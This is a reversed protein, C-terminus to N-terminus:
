GCRSDVEGCCIRHNNEVRIEVGVLVNLDTDIGTQIGIGSTSYLGNRAGMTKPLLLQAKDETEHSLLGGLTHM